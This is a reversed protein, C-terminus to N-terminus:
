EKAKLNKAKLDNYEDVIRDKFRIAEKGIKKGVKAGIRGVEKAIVKTSYKVKEFWEKM